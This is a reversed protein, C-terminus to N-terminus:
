LKEPRFKKPKAPKVKERKGDDPGGSKQWDQLIRECYSGARSAPLGKRQTIVLARMVWDEPWTRLWDMVTIDCTLGLIPQAATILQESIPERERKNSNNENNNPDTQLGDPTGDATREATDDPTGRAQYREYNLITIVTSLNTKQQEIMPENQQEIEQLFRRVKGRSWKWREALHPQSWGVQGRALPVKIGRKRLFGPKHNALM